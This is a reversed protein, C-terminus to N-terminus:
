GAEGWQMTKVDLVAWNPGDGEDRDLGTVEVPGYGFNATLKYSRRHRTAGYDAQASGALAPVPSV